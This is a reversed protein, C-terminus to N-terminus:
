VWHFFVWLGVRAQHDGQLHTHGTRHPDPSMQSTPNWELEQEVATRLRIEEMRRRGRDVEARLAWRSAPLSHYTLAVPWRLSLAQFSV